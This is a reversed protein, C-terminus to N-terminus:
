FSSVDHVGPVEKQKMQNQKLVKSNIHTGSFVNYTVTQM